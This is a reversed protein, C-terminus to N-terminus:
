FAFFVFHGKPWKLSRSGHFRGPKKPAFYDAIFQYNWISDKRNLKILIRLLNILTEPSVIETYITELNCLKFLLTLNFSVIITYVTEM